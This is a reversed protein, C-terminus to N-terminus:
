ARSHFDLWSALALGLYVVVLVIGVDRFDAPTIPIMLVCLGAAFLFFGARRDRPRSM